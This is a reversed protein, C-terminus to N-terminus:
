LEEPKLEATGGLHENIATQLRKLGLFLACLHFTARCKQPNPDQLHLLLTVWSQRVQDAFYAKWTRKTLRALIGFLVFALSYLPDDENDFYTRIQQTLDRFSSGVDNEKMVKALAKMSEGIVESSLTDHLARILIDLLFKEYNKVKEPVGYVLNRLGRVAIQCVISNRDHSKEELIHLISKLFKKERLMPDSMLQFLILMDMLGLIIM